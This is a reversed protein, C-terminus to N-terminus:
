LIRSVWNVDLTVVQADEEQIWGTTGNPLRIHLWDPRQGIIEFEIGERIPENLMPSYNVGNGKRIITENATLVGNDQHQDVIDAGVSIGLVIAACGLAISAIKFGSIPRCLRISVLGWFGFWVLVGVTLRVKTPLSEHWFALRKLMSRTNETRIPNSVLTRAHQLNALFRDNSPIYRQASRYAAIAEGVEGAQLQANGLNYWLKGNEIGDDVLIQFRNASRRFSEKSAVPDTTQLSIGSDYAVQAEQLVAAQQDPTLQHQTGALALVM